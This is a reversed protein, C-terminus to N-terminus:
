EQLFSPFVCQTVIEFVSPTRQCRQCSNYGGLRLVASLTGTIVLLLFNFLQFSAFTLYCIM